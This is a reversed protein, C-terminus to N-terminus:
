VRAPHGGKPVGYVELLQMPWRADAVDRVGLLLLSPTVCDDIIEDGGQIDGATLRASDWLNSYSPPRHREAGGGGGNAAGAAVGAAGASAPGGGGGRGRQSARAWRPQSILFAAACACACAVYRM